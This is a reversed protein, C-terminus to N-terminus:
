EKSTFFGTATHAIPIKQKEFVELIAFNIAQQVDMYVNFDASNVTYVTEFRISADSLTKCHCRGFTVQDQTDIIDQVLTPIQTLKKLPTGYEIALSFQVRRSQMKKYNHVRSETLEKNSIVLEEGQLTKLRTSKIGIKKVVGGDEGVVIYDGIKFPRDFYISISSFVDSLVNQVAFAVALGGLGLGGILASVEYGLNQIVVLIAVTWVTIGLVQRLFLLVTPDFEPEVRQRQAILRNFVFTLIVLASQIAVWGIVIGMVFNLLANVKAPLEIFQFSIYASIMVLIGWNWTKILDSIFSDLSNTLQLALAYLRRLFIAKFIFLIFFSLIFLIIFTLINDTYMQAFDFLASNISVLM